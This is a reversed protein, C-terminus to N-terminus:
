FDKLSIVKNLENFLTKLNHAKPYDGFRKFLIYKVYLHIVQEVFFLVLTYRKKEFAEYAEEEFLQAKEKLNM